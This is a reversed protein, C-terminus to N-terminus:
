EIIEEIGQGEFDTIIFLDEIEKIDVGPEIVAYNSLDYESECVENVTGIILGKPYTGGIGSTLIIGGPSVATTRELGSFVCHGKLSYDITTTVYATERTKSDLASINVEPSLISEVVSYSPHVKKVIGVVYNGYVAPDNVSINDNSGKDIILSTFMDATDTGIIGARELAFDPNEEKVGLMTEYSSLKQRMENYDVLQNEYEAIQQQLREIEKKYSGSSEFSDGLWKVNDAVSSVLKQVPSLMSGLVNTVPSAAGSSAVAIVAGALLACIVFMFTKFKRSKLFNLM